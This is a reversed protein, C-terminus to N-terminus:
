PNAPNNYVNLWAEYASFSETNSKWYQSAYATFTLTPQAAGNAIGAMMEKTVTDKVKVQKNTLVNLTQDATIAKCPKKCVYVGPIDADNGDKLQEWVSLDISYEIYDDLKPSVSKAVKVFVWCDESDDKVTVVPDKDITWGPVMKFDTETETLTVTIDSETFVNVVDDSKDTLWALSGGVATGILLVLALALALSKSGFIRRKHQGKQEFKGKRM